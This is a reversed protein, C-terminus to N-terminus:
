PYHSRRIGNHQPSSDTIQRLEVWLTSGGGEGCARVDLSLRKGGMGAPFSQIFSQFGSTDNGRFRSDRELLSGSDGQM